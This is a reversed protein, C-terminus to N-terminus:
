PFRFNSQTPAEPKLEKEKNKQDVEDWTLEKVAYVYGNKKSLRLYGHKKLAKGLKMVTGDTINLKAKDALKAAIQTTNIFNNATEKDAIEFWTLLLEEEPSRIQYQENNQNIEKIEEQNFWFRFGEAYLQKAQAYALNIDVEHTYEIAEVEFCLFRRSGTTDNLFQATNVSGAFSARRPLTENNHGYAKRMRIHTKTILEKLTGIETRNLNELEDLNILMCEALHILTDKNNPNITGSFMYDKLPKPILKEIWTTKGVGQKGSFVIVTQNIAKENTVCAVMAVFWKKFCIQWLDQRTTTITNALETIYDTENENDALTTFYDKFPDYQECFDSRLLNRLTNINCKVKAKMIERLISNEVFDTVPKWLTAKSAKYELKGTVINYRFSYRYNLFTELRDIFSPKEEEEDTDEESSKNSKSQKSIEGNPSISLNSKNYEHTNSYASNVTTAVEKTDFNYDSLIYGMATPLPVGKRNLNCALLHIFNNRNGNVYSEKKETFRVCHEYTALYDNSFNETAFGNSAITPPETIVESNQEIYPTLDETSIVPYVTANENLYLDTDYSVFCLRTADKGSKDIPLSLFEEYFKQLTLFAEKHNEQASNVRVFIKLGNGSPSIFVAYTYPTQIALAKANTLQEKTLKDIDLVVIQTYATLYELKRGGKFTASPTFAPLSKKAREYAEMKSEALSKRLYTIVNKYKGTKIDELVEIIKQNQVVENFNKFISVVM